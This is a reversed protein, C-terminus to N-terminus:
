WSWEEAENEDFHLRIEANGEEQSFYTPTFGNEDTVGKKEGEALKISFKTNAYPIGNDDTLRFQIRYPQKLEGTNNPVNLEKEQLGIHVADM